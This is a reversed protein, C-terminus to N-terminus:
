NVLRVGTPEFDYVETGLVLKDVAGTFAYDRGKALAVSLITANPYFAKM